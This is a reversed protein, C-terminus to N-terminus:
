AAALAVGLVMSAIESSPYYIAFKGEKRTEIAGAAALIRLHHMLAPSSMGLLAGLECVCLPEIQIAALISARVPHGLAQYLGATKALREASPLREAVRGVRTPDDNYADCRIRDVSTERVTRQAKPVVKSIM